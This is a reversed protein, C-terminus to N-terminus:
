FDGILLIKMFKQFIKALFRLLVAKKSMRYDIVFGSHTAFSFIPCFRSTLVGIQKIAWRVM